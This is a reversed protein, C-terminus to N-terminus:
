VPASSTPWKRTVEVGKRQVKKLIVKRACQLEESTLMTQTNKISKHWHLMWAVSRLTRICKSTRPTDVIDEVCKPVDNDALAMMFLATGAENNPHKLWEAEPRKLWEPDNWWILSSLQIVTMGRTPVDSPNENTPDRSRVGGVATIEEVRNAVFVGGVRQGQKTWALVVSFDTWLFEDDIKLM